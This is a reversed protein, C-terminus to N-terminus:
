QLANFIVIFNQLQLNRKHIICNAGKIENRAEKKTNSPNMNM